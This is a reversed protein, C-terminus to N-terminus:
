SRTPVFVALAVALAMAIGGFLFLRTSGGGSVGASPGLVGFAAVALWEFSLVGGLLRALSRRGIPRGAWLLVVAIASAVGCVLLALLMPFQIVVVGLGSETFSVAGLLLAVGGTVVATWCAPIWTASASQDSM